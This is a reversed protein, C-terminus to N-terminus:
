RPLYMFVDEAREAGCVALAIMRMTRDFGALTPTTTAVPPPAAVARPAPTAALPDLGRLTGAALLGAGAAALVVVTAVMGVVVVVVM